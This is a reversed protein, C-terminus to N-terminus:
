SRRMESSSNILAHLNRSFDVAAQPDMNLAHTLYEKVAQSAIPPAKLIAATTQDLLADLGGEPAIESVIGFSVAREASILATSNVLYTIAKRPLRDILASLVMGPYINHGMEPIQFKATDAALTIDSLAAIALGFGRARGQVVSIVPIPCRRVANYCDFVIDYDRRRQLAEKPVAPTGPAPKPGSDRGMCFDAGAGRLVVIRANEPAGHLISILEVAMADNVGNGVEPRNLTVTLIEGEQRTLISESM